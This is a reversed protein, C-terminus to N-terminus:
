LIQQHSWCQDLYRNGEWLCQPVLECALRGFPGGSFMLRGPAGHWDIVLDSGLSGHYWCTPCWWALVAIAQPFLVSPV